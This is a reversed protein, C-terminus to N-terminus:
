RNGDGRGALQAAAVPRAAPVPAIARRSDTSGRAGLARVSEPAKEPLVEMQASLGARLLGGRNEVEACVTCTQTKADIAANVFTIRGPFSMREIELDVGGVVPSIRVSQGRRVRSADHVDLNGVVLLRDPDVVQYIPM